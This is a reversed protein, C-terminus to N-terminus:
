VTTPLSDIISTDLLGTEPILDSVGILGTFAAVYFALMIGMMLVSIGVLATIMDVRFFDKTARYLIAIGMVGLIAMVLFALAAGFLPIYSLITAILLGVMIPLLTYTIATLGEFFKGRGGLTTMTVKLLYGIIATVVVGSIFITFAAAGGGFAGITGFRATLIFVAIAALVWEIILILTTEGMNKAKQAKKIADGPTKLINM